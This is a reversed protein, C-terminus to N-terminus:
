VKKFMYKVQQIALILNKEQLSRKIFQWHMRMWMQQNLKHKGQLKRDSILKLFHRRNGDFYKSTQVRSASVTHQRYLVLHERIFDFRNGKALRRFFDLDEAPLNLAEDFFIEQKFASKRILSTSAGLLVIATAPNTFFYEECEGSFIPDQQHLKDLKEDVVTIGCYVLALDPNKDFVGLQETLKNPLWVDDSDCFAIFDGTALRLGNNRAQNVGGHPQCIITVKDSYERAISVSDDTSGDDVFLIEVNLHTQGLIGLLCDKLYRGYNYNPVIVSVRDRMHSIRLCIELQAM